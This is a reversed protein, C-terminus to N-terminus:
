KDRRDECKAEGYEVCLGFLTRNPLENWSQLHRLKSADRFLRSPISKNISTIICEFDHALGTPGLGSSLPQTLLAFFASLNAWPLSENDCCILIDTASLVEQIIWLRTWYERYCISRIAELKLIGKETVPPFLISNDSFSAWDSDNGTKSLVGIALSSEVSKGGLWVVARSANSYIRGMQSVQLNREAINDQNICIADIWLPREEDKLRLHYLASWLNERVYHDNADVYIPKENGKFGWMYSLAEYNPAESLKVHKINCRITDDHDSFRPQLYLLRIEDLDDLPCYITSSGSSFHSCSPVIPVSTSASSQVSSSRPALKQLEFSLKKQLDMEQFVLRQARSLLFRYDKGLAYASRDSTRSITETM